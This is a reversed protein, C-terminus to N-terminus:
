LLSKNAKESWGPMDNLDEPPGPHPNSDYGTAAVGPRWEWKKAIAADLTGTMMDVIYRGLIPLFKFGHASGGIALYLNGHRPHHSILFNYDPMNGDWCIKTEIWERAALDPLFETLWNRLQSEIKKPITDKPNESRYRPISVNGNM